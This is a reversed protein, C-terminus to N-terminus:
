SFAGLQTSSGGRLTRPVSPTRRPPMPTQLRHIPPAAPATTPPPLSIMSKRVQPKCSREMEGEDGECGTWEGVARQRDQEDLAAKRAYFPSLAADLQGCIRLTLSAWDVPKDEEARRAVEAERARRAKEELQAADRKRQAERQEMESKKRLWAMSAEVELLRATRRRQRDRWTRQVVVASQDEWLWRRMRERRAREAARLRAQHAEEAALLRRRMACGATWRRWEDRWKVLEERKHKFAAAQLRTDRWLEALAREASVMDPQSDSFLQIRVDLEDIAPAECPPPPVAYRQVMEQTKSEARAFISNPPPDDVIRWLARADAVAM